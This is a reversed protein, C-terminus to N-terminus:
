NPIFASVIQTGFCSKTQTLIKGSANKKLATHWTCNKVDYLMKPQGKIINNVIDKQICKLSQFM